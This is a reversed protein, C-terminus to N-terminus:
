PRGINSSEPNQPKPTKPNQTLAVPYVKENRMTELLLFPEIACSFM